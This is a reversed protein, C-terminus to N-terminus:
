IGVVCNFVALHEVMIFGAPWQGPVWQFNRPFFAIQVIPKDDKAQVQARQPQPPAPTWEVERGNWRGLWLGPIFGGQPQQPMTPIAGPNVVQPNYKAVSSQFRRESWYTSVVFIGVTLGVIGLAIASLPGPALLRSGGVESKLLAQVKPSIANRTSSGNLLQRGCELTKGSLPPPVAAQAKPWLAQVALFGAGMVLGRRVLRKRLIERGRMLRVALTGVPCGLEAAAEEYSRGEICCLLLPSRYSEPLGHLERDLVEAAERWAVEDAPNLEVAVDPLPMAHAQKHGKGRQRLSIRVAVRYLWNPLAMKERISHGKRLLTLFTAQFADEADAQNHLLRRCVGLIMPGHRAVLLSFAESEHDRLFEDLLEHDSRTDAGQSLQNFM